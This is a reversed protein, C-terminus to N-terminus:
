LRSMLAGNESIIFFDKMSFTILLAQIMWFLLCPIKAKTGDKTNKKVLYDIAHETSTNLCDDFYTKTLLSYPKTFAGIKKALVLELEKTITNFLAILRYARTISYDDKHLKQM